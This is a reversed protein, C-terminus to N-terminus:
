PRLHHHSDRGRLSRRDLVHKIGGHGNFDEVVIGEYVVVNLIAVLEAMSARRTQLAYPTARAIFATKAIGHARETKKAEFVGGRLEVRPARLHEREQVFRM